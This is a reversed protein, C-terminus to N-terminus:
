ICFWGFSRDDFNTYCLLICRWPPWFRWVVHFYFWVLFERTKAIIMVVFGFILGLAIALLAAGFASVGINKILKLITEKQKPSNLKNQM